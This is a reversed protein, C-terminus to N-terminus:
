VLSVMVLRVRRYMKSQHKNIKYRAKAMCITECFFIISAEMTRGPNAAEHLRRRQSIGDGFILAGCTSERRMQFALAAGVSMPIGGAVIGNAGFIGLDFYTMYLNGGKGGCLQAAPPREAMM